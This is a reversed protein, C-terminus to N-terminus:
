GDHTSVSVSAREKRPSSLPSKAWSFHQPVVRLLRSKQRKIGPTGGNAPTLTPINVPVPVDTAPLTERQKGKDRKLEVMSKSRMISQKFRM